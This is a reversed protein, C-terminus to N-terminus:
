KYTGDAQLTFIKGNVTMQQPKQTEQTQPATSGVFNPNIGYAKALDVARQNQANISTNAGNLYQKAITAAEALTQTTVGAGGKAINDVKGQLQDLLSQGQATRDYESERVVSTPDLIKNFSTIIAQTNLSKDGGNIINNYSSQIINAQRVMERSNETRNQTDKAISQTAQFQQYPTLGASGARAVSARRNADENQYQSFTGKYGDKKAYEYEQVSVPQSKALEAATKAKEAADTKKATNYATTIDGMTVGLKSAADSIAKQNEPTLNSLDIGQSYLAAALTNTNTKKTEEQGKLYDIYTKAGSTLAERRRQAEALAQTNAQDYIAQIAANKEADIANEIQTNQAVTQDAIAGGRMSGSLGRNALISTTQGVRGVGEQRARNLQEAYVQNLANIRDQFGAITDSRIKSTDVIDTGAANKEIISKANLYNPDNSYSDGITPLQVTPTTTAAPTTTATTTTPKFASAAATLPGYMGDVKLPTYGAVGQNQTNLQKQLDMVAQGSTGQTPTQNPQLPTYQAM